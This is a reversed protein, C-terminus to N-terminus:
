SAILCVLVFRYFPPDVVAFSSPLLNKRKPGQGSEYYTWGHSDDIVVLKSERRTTM